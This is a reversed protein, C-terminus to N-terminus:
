HQQPKSFGQEPIHVKYKWLPERLAAQTQVHLFLLFAKRNGSSSFKSLLVFHAGGNM